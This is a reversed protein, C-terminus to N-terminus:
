GNKLNKDAEDYYQCSKLILKDFEVWLHTSSGMTDITVVNGFAQRLPKIYCCVKYHNCTDHCSQKTM